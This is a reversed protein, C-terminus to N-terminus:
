LAWSSRGFGPGGAVCEFRADAGVRVASVSSTPPSCQKSKFVYWFGRVQRQPLRQTARLHRDVKQFGSGVRITHCIEDFFPKRTPLMGGFVEVWWSSLKSVPACVRSPHFCIGIRVELGYAVIVIM